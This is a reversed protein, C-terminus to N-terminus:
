HGQFQFYYWIYGFSPWSLPFSDPRGGGGSAPQLIYEYPLFFKIKEIQNFIGAMANMIEFSVAYFETPPEELVGLCVVYPTVLTGWSKPDHHRKEILAKKNIM